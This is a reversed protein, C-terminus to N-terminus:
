WRQSTRESRRSWRGCAGMSTTPARGGRWCHPRARGRTARGGRSQRRGRRAILGAIRDAEGLVSKLYDSSRPPQRMVVPRRGVRESDIQRWALTSRMVARSVRHIPCRLGARHAALVNLRDARTRVASLCDFQPLLTLPATMETEGCGLCCGRQCPHRGVPGTARAGSECRRCRLGAARNPDASRATCLCEPPDDPAGATGPLPVQARRGCAGALVM